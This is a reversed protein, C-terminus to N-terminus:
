NIFFIRELGSTSDEKAFASKIAKIYQSNVPDASVHLDILINEARINLRNSKVFDRIHSRFRDIVTNIEGPEVDRFYFRPLASIPAKPHLTGPEERRNVEEAFRCILEGDIQHMDRGYFSLASFGDEAVVLKHWSKFQNRDEDGPIFQIEM